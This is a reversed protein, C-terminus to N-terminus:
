SPTNLFNKITEPKSAYYYIVSGDVVAYSEFDSDYLVRKNTDIAIDVLDQLSTIYVYQNETDTPFEGESIWPDYKEKTINISLEEIDVRQTRWWAIGIGATGLVLGFLVFIGIRQMDPSLQRTQPETTQRKTEEVALDSPFWYAQSSIQPQLFSSMQGEYTGGGKAPSEYSLRFGLQSSVSGVIVAQEPGSIMEELESIRISINSVFEGNEVQQEKAELMNENQWFQEGNFTASHRLVLQYSIEVPRDDPVDAKMSLTVVPMSDRYYVPHNRLVTGNQYLQTSNTVVASHDVTAEFNQVDIEEPPVQEVPPNLYTHGAVGVSVIALIVLVIGVTDAYVAIHYKLRTVTSM